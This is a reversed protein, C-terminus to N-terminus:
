MIARKKPTKATKAPRMEHVRRPEPMDLRKVIIAVNQIVRAAIRIVYAEGDRRRSSEVSM